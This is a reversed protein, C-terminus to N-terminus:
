GFGLDFSNEDSNKQHNMIDVARLSSGLNTTGLPSNPRITVTFAATLFAVRSTNTLVFHRGKTKFM